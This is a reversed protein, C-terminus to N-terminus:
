RIPKAIVILRHTYTTYPWCTILTLQEYPTPAMVKGNDLSQARSVGAQKLKKIEEVRYKYQKGDQTWVWIENGPILKELYRFVEGRYNNHGAVVVNGGEGPNPTNYHHGAAYDAVEWKGTPAYVEYVTTDLRINPSTIRVIRGPLNPRRDGYRVGNPLIHVGPQPRATPTSTAPPRGGRPLPAGPTPTSVAQQPQITSTTLQPQTAATPQEVIPTTLAPGPPLEAPTIIPAPTQGALQPTSLEATAPAVDVIPSTTLMLAAARTPPVAVTPTHRLVPITSTVVLPPGGQSLASPRGSDGPLGKWLAMGVLGLLGLGLLAWM